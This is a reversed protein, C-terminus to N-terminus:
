YKKPKVIIKNYVGYRLLDISIDPSNQNINFDRYTKNFYIENIGAQFLRRICNICPSLTIIAICGKTCLGNLNCNLLANEEAHIMIPYKEPRTKPMFKDACGRIYGNYGSGVLSGDEKRILICGVKTQKDPSNKSVIDAQQMYNHLKKLSLPKRKFELDQKSTKTYKELIWTLLM